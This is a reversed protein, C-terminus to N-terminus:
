FTQTKGWSDFITEFELVGEAYIMGRVLTDRNFLILIAVAFLLLRLIHQAEFAM